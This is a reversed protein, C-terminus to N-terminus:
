TRRNCASWSMITEKPEPLFYFSISQWLFGQLSHGQSNLYIYIEMPMGKGVGVRVLTMTKSTKRTAVEMEMEIATWIDKQELLTLISSRLRIVKM